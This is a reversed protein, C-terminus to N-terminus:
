YNEALIDLNAELADKSPCGVKSNFIENKNNLCIMVPIETVNYGKIAEKNNDFYVTIKNDEIEDEGTNILIFNIVNKYNDYVENLNKVFELSEESSNNIFVIMVPLDKYDSLKISNGSKDFVEFDVYDVPFDRTKSVDNEEDLVDEKIINETESENKITKDDTIDSKLSFQVYVFFILMIIFLFIAFFLFYLSKKNKM